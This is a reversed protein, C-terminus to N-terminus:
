GAAPPFGRGPAVSSPNVPKDDSPLLFGSYAVFQSGTLPLGIRIDFHYQGDQDEERTIISPWLARPVPLGLMRLRQLSLEVGGEKVEPASIATIPGMREALLGDPTQWLTSTMDHRGISRVWQESIGRSKTTFFFRADQIDDPFGALRALWKLALNRSLTVTIRGAFTAHCEHIAQCAPGLDNFGTGLLQHYLTIV